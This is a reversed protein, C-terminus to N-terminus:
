LVPAANKLRDTQELELMGNACNLVFATKLNMNQVTKEYYFVPFM